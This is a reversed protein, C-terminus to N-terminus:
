GGKSKPMKFNDCNSLNALDIYNGCGSPDMKFFVKTVGYVLLDSDETIVFDVKGSKFLYALQADAEYPAVVYKVNMTELVQTLRYVMLSNIEVAEMFKRQAHSNEGKTLLEEAQQRSEERQKKRQEEIRKKMPLRAGDFVM